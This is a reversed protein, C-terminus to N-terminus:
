TFMSILMSCSLSGDSVWVMCFWTAFLMINVAVEGSRERQFRSENFLVLPDTGSRGVRFFALQNWDVTGSQSSSSACKVHLKNKITQNSVTPPLGTWSELHLETDGSIKKMSHSAALTADTARISTGDQHLQVEQTSSTTSLKHSKIMIVKM